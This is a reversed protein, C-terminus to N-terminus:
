RRVPLTWGSAKDPHKGKMLDLTQRTSAEDIDFIVVRAGEAAFLRAVARGIGSGGGTIVAVKDELRM